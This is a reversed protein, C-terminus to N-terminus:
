LQNNINYKIKFDVKITLVLLNSPFIFIKFFIINEKM